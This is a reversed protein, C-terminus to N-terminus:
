AQSLLFYEWDLFCFRYVFFQILIFVDMNQLLPKVQSFLTTNSSDNALFLNVLTSFVLIITGEVVVVAEGISFSFQFTKLVYELLSYSKINLLIIVSALCLLGMVGDLVSLFFCGALTIMTSVIHINLPKWNFLHLNIYVSSVLSCLSTMKYSASAPTENFHYCSTILAM